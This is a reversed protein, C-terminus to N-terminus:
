QAEKQAKHYLLASGVLMTISAIVVFVILLPLSIMAMVLLAVAWLGLKVAYLWKRPQKGLVASQIMRSQLVGFTLGALATICYAWWAISSFDM